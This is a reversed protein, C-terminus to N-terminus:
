FPRKEGDGAHLHLGRLFVRALLAKTSCGKTRGNRGEQFPERNYCFLISHVPVIDKKKRLFNQASQSASLCRTSVRAPYRSPHTRINHCVRMRPSSVRVLSIGCKAVTSTNEFTNKFLQVRLHCALSTARSYRRSIECISYPWENQHHHPCTELGELSPLIPLHYWTNVAECLKLLIFMNYKSYQSLSKSPKVGGLTFFIAACSLPHKPFSIGSLGSSTCHLKSHKSENFCASNM